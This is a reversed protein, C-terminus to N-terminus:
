YEAQTSRGSNTGHNEVNLLVLQSLEKFGNKVTTFHEEKYGLIEISIPVNDECAIKAAEEETYLGATQIVATYGSSAPGWFLHANGSFFMDKHGLCM